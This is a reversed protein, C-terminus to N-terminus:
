GMLCGPWQASLVPWSSCPAGRRLPTPPRGLPVSLYILNFDTGRGRTIKVAPPSSQCCGPNHPGAREEMDGPTGFNGRRAPSDGGLPVKPNAAKGAAATAGRAPAFAGVCLAKPRESMAVRGTAGITAASM